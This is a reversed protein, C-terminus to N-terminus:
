VKIAVNGTVGNVRMIKSKAGAKVTVYYTPVYFNDLKTFVVSREVVRKIDKSVKSAEKVIAKLVKEASNFKGSTIKNKRIWASSAGEVFIAKGPITKGKKPLVVEKGVMAGKLQDYVGLEQVDVTVYKMNVTADYISYFDYKLAPKGVKLASPSVGLIEAGTAAALKGAKDPKVKTGFYFLKKKKADVKLKAHAGTTKFMAASLKTSKKKKKAM